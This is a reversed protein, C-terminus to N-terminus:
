AWGQLGWLLVCLALPGPAAAEKYHAAQTCSTLSLSPTPLSLLLVYLERCCHSPAQLTIILQSYKLINFTVNIRQHISDLMREM